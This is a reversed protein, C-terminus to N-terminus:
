IIEVDEFRVRQTRLHGFMMWLVEVRGYESGLVRARLREAGITVNVESGVPLDGGRPPHHPLVRDLRDIEGAPLAGLMEAVGPVQRLVGSSAAFFYGPLWLRMVAPKRGTQYRYTYVRWGVGTRDLMRPVLPQERGRQLLYSSNCRFTYWSACGAVASNDLMAPSLGAIAGDQALRM